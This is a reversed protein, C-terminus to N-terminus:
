FVRHRRCATNKLHTDLEVDGFPVAPLGLFNPEKIYEKLRLRLL